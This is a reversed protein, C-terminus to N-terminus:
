ENRRSMFAREAANTGAPPPEILSAATGAIPASDPSDPTGSEAHRAILTSAHEIITATV